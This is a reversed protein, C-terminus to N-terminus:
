ILSEIDDWKYRKKFKNLYGPSIYGYHQMQGVVIGPSVGAEMALGIIARKNGPTTKLKAQLETPILIEAAFYNADREDESDVKVKDLSELFTKKNNHLLLHGAEHFFTFWFQDDSLYRFSLLMMAKNESLFKTAGSARCGVPTKAIALAIGCRRCEEQLDPLFDKPNKKKSLGKIQYLREEFLSPNWPNCDIYSAKMEGQRLWAATAGFGQEFRTSTRFSVTKFQSKYSEYWTQIDSIGFYRLCEQVIDSKKQIWGYELMNKIPLSKIWDSALVTNIHVIDKRYQEERELWFGLSGGLVSQLKDAIKEDIKTSGGLLSHVFQTSSDMERAFQDITFKKSNLINQITEGPKSAWNPQFSTRNTM